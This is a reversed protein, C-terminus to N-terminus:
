SFISSLSDSHIILIYFDLASNWQTFYWYYYSFCCFITLTNINNFISDWILDFIWSVRQPKSARILPVRQESLREIFAGISSCCWLCRYIFHASPQIFLMDETMPSSAHGHARRKNHHHHCRHRHRYHHAQLPFLRIIEEDIYIATKLHRHM